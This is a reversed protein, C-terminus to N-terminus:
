VPLGPFNDRVMAAYPSEDNAAKSVFQRAVEVLEIFEEETIGFLSATYAMIDEDDLDIAALCTNNKVSNFYKRRNTNIKERNLGYAIISKEGKQDKHYCDEERFGIHDAPEDQSPRILLPSEDAIDDHHSRARRDDDHLPFYNKKHRRNCMECSFFLNAWDYAQWYYGPKKIKDNRRQQYGGKPRFHEIDGYSTATFDAECFCCKGHQDRILQDKITPHNYIGSDIEIKKEGELYAHPDSDYLLRIAETAEIGKEVLHAPIEPSKSVKIM